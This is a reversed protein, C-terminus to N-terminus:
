MKMPFSIKTTPANEQVINSIFVVAIVELMKAFWNAEIFFRKCIKNGTHIVMSNYFLFFLLKLRFVCFTPFKRNGGRFKTGSESENGPVCFSQGCYAAYL